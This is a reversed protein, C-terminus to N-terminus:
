ITVTGNYNSLTLTVTVNGQTGADATIGIKVPRLDNKEAWVDVTGNGSLGSPAASGIAGALDSSSLAITVHYCTQDGCPEDAAKTATVGPQSLAKNVDNIITQPDTAASAAPDSAGAVTKTYKDGLISIKTYTTNGIVIIDGTVGFLSPASFGVHFSKNALDADGEATTGKLDLTSGSGSGTLNVNLTGGVDAKFHFNKVDKLSQVSQSVIAKPDTIATAAPGAANCAGLALAATAMVFLLRRLM